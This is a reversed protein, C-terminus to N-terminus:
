GGDAAPTPRFEALAAYIQSKPRWEHPPTNALVRIMELARGKQAPTWSECPSHNPADREHLIMVAENWQM